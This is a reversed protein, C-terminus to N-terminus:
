SRASAVQLGVSMDRKTQKASKGFSAADPTVINMTVNNTVIRGNDNASSDNGTLRVPIERGRSLPIVAEDDHLIAPRGGSTNEVGESYHPANAFAGMGVSYSTVPNAFTGGEKFGFIKGVSGFLSSFINGGSSSGSGGGGFLGSFLNGGGSGTGFLSGFIGGGNADGALNFMGLFQKMLSSMVIKTIEKLISQGLAAFDAQGTVVMDAMKDILGDIAEKEVKAIAVGFDETSRIWSALGNTGGAKLKELREITGRMKAEQDGTLVVGEKLLENKKELLTQEIARQSNTMQTLKMESELADLMRDFPEASGYMQERMQKMAQAMAVGDKSDTASKLAGSVSDQKGGAAMRQWDNFSPTLETKDRRSKFKQEWQQGEKKLEAQDAMTQLQSRLESSQQQTVFLGEKAFDNLRKQWETAVERDKESMESLRKESALREQEMKWIDGTEVGAQKLLEVMDAEELKTKGTLELRKEVLPILREWQTYSLDKWEFKPPTKEIPRDASLQEVKKENAKQQQQWSPLNSNAAAAGNKPGMWEFHMTDKVSRWDGGWSLNNRAAIERINKPMDTIFQQSYPNQAPNIDIANGFAHQSLGGGSIKNRLAYGGISKIKYGTGELEKLFNQFDAAAAGLVQVSKGSSTTISRLNQSAWGPSRPDGVNSTNAWNVTKRGSFGVPEPGSLGFKGNPMNSVNANSFNTGSGIGGAAAGAGGTAQLNQQFRQQISEFIANIGNAMPGGPAVLDTVGSEFKRSAEEVASAGSKIAEKAGQSANRLHDAGFQFGANNANVRDVFGKQSTIGLLGYFAASGSQAASHAKDGDGTVIGMAVGNISKGLNLIYQFRTTLYAEVISMSMKTIDIVKNFADRYAEVIPSNGNGEIINVMADIGNGVIPFLAHFAAAGDLVMQKFFGTVGGGGQASKQQIYAWAVDSAASILQWAEVGYQSATQWTAKAVQAFTYQQEGMTVLGKGWDVQLGIGDRVYGAITTFATYVLAAKILFGAIGSALIGFATMLGGRSLAAGLGAFSGGLTLVSTAIGGLMPGIALLWSLMGLGARAAILGFLATFALKVGEINRIVWVAGDGISSFLTKFGVALSQVQSQMTSSAMVGNIKDFMTKLGESFGGEWIAIKMKSISNSFRTVATDATNMSYQLSGGYVKAAQAGAKIVADAGVEGKKMMEDLKATSVGLADAFLRVAGPMHDGLQQRLEEANVKGKSFMQELAKLALKTQDGSMGMAKFAVAFGAFTTQVEQMSYGSQKAAAAFKGYTGILADLSLGLKDAQQQIFTWEKETEGVSRATTMIQTRFKEYNRGAELISDSATKVGVAIGAVGLAPGLGATSIPSQAAPLMRTTSAAPRPQTSPIRQFTGGGTVGNGGGNGSGGRGGGNNFSSFAGGQNNNIIPRISMRGNVGLMGSIGSAAVQRLAAAVAMIHGPNASGLVALMRGLATVSAGRLEFGRLATGIAVLGPAFRQVNPLNRLEAVFLGFNAVTSAGMRPIASLGQGLGQLAAGMSPSIRITSLRSLIPALASLGKIRNDGVAPLARLSQALATLTPALSAPISLRQMRSLIPTLYQLGLIKGDSVAPLANLARGLATLTPALNAPLRVTALGALAQTMYQIGLIKGDNVSPLARLARGLAAVNGALTPDIRVRSLKDLVGTLANLGKVDKVNLKDLTGSMRKISAAAADADRATKRFAGGSMADLKRYNDNLAQVDRNLSGIGGVRSMQDFMKFASSASQEFRATTREAAAVARDYRRLGQEAGGADVVIDLRHQEAM